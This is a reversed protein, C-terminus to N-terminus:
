SGLVGSGSEAFPGLYTIEFGNDLRALYHDGVADLDEPTADPDVVVAVAAPDDVLHATWVPPFLEVIEAFLDQIDIDTLTDYSTPDLEIVLEDGPGDTPERFVIQYQPASLEEIPT